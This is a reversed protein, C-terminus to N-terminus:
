LKSQGAGLAQASQARPSSPILASLQEHEAEGLLRHRLAFDLTVLAADTTMADGAALEVAEAVPLCHLEAVEGDQNVPTLGAPLCLDFGHVQERMFGEAIDCALEIVNGPVAQRMLQAPLGAEEFGERVLTEFPTQGHPVGGGVLNDLKGPDTAKHASRRAIWLHTPRGQGDAVYGNAHAGFTLTGWFRATAREILALPLEGLRTLVAYTEDRWALILGQARLAANIAALASDRNPAILQVGREDVDLWQPWGCLADLHAAAVSGVAAGDITFPVRPVDGRRAAALAPWRGTSLGGRARGGLHAM